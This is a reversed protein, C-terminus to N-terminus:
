NRSYLVTLESYRLSSITIQVQAASYMWENLYYKIFSLPLHIWYPNESTSDVFSTFIPNLSPSNDFIIGVRAWGVSYFQSHHGASTCWSRLPGGCWIYGAAGSRLPGWILHVWHGWEEPTGWILHMWHGWKEPAKLDLANVLGVEWPDWLGSTDLLGKKTTCWTKRM